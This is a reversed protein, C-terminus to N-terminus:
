LPISGHQWRRNDSGLIMHVGHRRAEETEIMKGGHRTQRRAATAVVVATLVVATLVVATLVVATAVVATLVVDTHM